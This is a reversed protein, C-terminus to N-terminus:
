RGWFEKICTCTYIVEEETLGPYMPLSLIERAAREAEPFDGQGHGLNRYADQLHIPTPYHILTTVGKEKLHRTLAERERTRVVYLHYVHYAWPKEVPLILPMGELERRYIGALYRREENWVDLKALKYRLIAAQLEDLRSNFGEMVHVHREKQGYIHLAHATQYTGEDDTVVAGGDGYCGLNKTPYFSFASIKGFTGTKRGKYLAGHAQCADELLPVGYRDCVSVIRDMDCPHGYLHVPICLRVGKEKRLVEELKEPDMLHTDPDVDCFVPVIGYPSLAMVTAIYTNPTTVIRDGRKLGLALGAVRVADTGSAVGLSYRTGIYSAFAEEFRAVEKGAIFEGGSAVRQFIKLLDAALADYERKLDFIKVVM